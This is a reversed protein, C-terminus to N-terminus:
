LKLLILKDHLSLGKASLIGGLLHFPAPLHPAKIQVSQQDPFFYKLNLPLRLFLEEEKIGLESFLTLTQECSGVMIHQGNDIPYDHFRGCRARGGAQRSSEFLAVPQKYKNLHLACSLGAWGGGAIINQNNM